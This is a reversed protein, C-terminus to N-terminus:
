NNPKIEWWGTPQYHAVKNREDERNMAWYSDYITGDEVYSIHHDFMYVFKGKDLLHVLHVYKLSANNPRYRSTYYFLECLQKIVRNCEWFTLGDDYDVKLLKMVVDFERTQMDFAQSIAIGACSGFRFDNKSIELPVIIEKRRM